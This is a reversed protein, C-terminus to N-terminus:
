TAENVLSPCCVSAEEIEAQLADDHSIVCNVTRGLQPANTM